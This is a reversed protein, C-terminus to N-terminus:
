EFNKYKLQYVRDRKLHVHWSELSANHYPSGKRSFSHTMGYLNLNEEYEHIMYQSGQDSHLIMAKSKNKSEIAKSLTRQVLEVTM